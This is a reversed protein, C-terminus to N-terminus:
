GGGTDSQEIEALDLVLEAQGVGIGLPAEIEIAGVAFGGLMMSKASTKASIELSADIGATRSSSYTYKTSSAETITASSAGAYGDASVTLNESPVPPPGEIFGALQPDFQAQGVWEVGLDGVKYGTILQWRGADDALAYCRKYVGLASGDAARQLDAYEAVGTADVVRATYLNTLGAVANRVQPADAGVPATSPQYSGAVVALTNGRPGPRDPASGARRRVHLVRGPRAARGRRAPVHQGAATRHQAAYALRVARGA